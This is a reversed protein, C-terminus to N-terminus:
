DEYDFEDQLVATLRELASLIERATDLLESLDSEEAYEFVEDDESDREAAYEQEIREAFECCKEGDCCPYDGDCPYYGADEPEILENEMLECLEDPDGTVLYSGPIGWGDFLEDSRIDYVNAMEKVKRFCASTDPVRRLHFILQRLMAYLELKEDIHGLYDEEHILYMKENEM